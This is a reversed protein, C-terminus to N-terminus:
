GGLVEYRAHGINDPGGGESERSLEYVGPNQIADVLRFGVVLARSVQGAAPEVPVKFVIDPDYSIGTKCAPEILDVAIAGGLRYARANYEARGMHRGDGGMKAALEAVDRRAGFPKGDGVALGSGVRDGPVGADGGGVWESIAEALGRIGKM